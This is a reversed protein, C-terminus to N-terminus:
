VTLGHGFRFLPDATDFPVDERSAEVAAMSRPLDFPLRGRAAVPSRTSCRRRRRRRLERRGGRGDGGAAHPDGPRDLYVDLITPVASAIATIRAIEDAPFDLSGAHFFAEFGPGRQEYPARLRLIAVDADAPDDVRRRTSARPTSAAAGPPWPSSRRRQDPRDRAASQAAIGAARFDDNGVIASAAEVDVYRREDFLGLLFKERLLRRVSEDIRDESVSDPVCWRRGRGGPLVRRGLQDAGAELILAVRDEVPCTSSAGRARRSDAARVGRRRVGPGLRHLHHRRLRARERLLDIVPKNFASGSRASGTLGVPMGYYPMMQARGPPWCRGQVARPARDFRGGPYVQERGYAFHPDEGDKQPGGGPFHKTM